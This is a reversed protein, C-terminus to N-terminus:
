IANFDHMINYVVSTGFIFVGLVLLLTTVSVIDCMKRMQLSHQRTLTLHLWGM